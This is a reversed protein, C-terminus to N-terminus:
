LSKSASDGATFGGAKSIASVMVKGGEAQTNAFNTTTSCMGTTTDFAGDAACVNLGGKSTDTSTDTVATGWTGFFFSAAGEAVDNFRYLWTLTSGTDANLTNTGTGYGPWETKLTNSGSFTHAGYLYFKLNMAASLVMPIRRGGCLAWNLDSITTYADGVYFM